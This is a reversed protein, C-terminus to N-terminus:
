RSQHRVFHRLFYREVEGIKHVLETTPADLETAARALGLTSYSDSVEYGVTVAEKKRYELGSRIQELGEISAPDANGARKSALRDQALAIAEDLLRVLGEIKPDM